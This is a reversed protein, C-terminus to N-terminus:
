VFLAGFHWKKRCLATVGWQLPLMARQYCILANKKLPPSVRQHYLYGNIKSSYILVLKSQIFVFIEKKGHL